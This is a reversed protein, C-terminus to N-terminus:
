LFRKINIIIKGKKSTGSEGLYIIKGYGRLTIRDNEKIRTDSSLNNKGSVSVRGQSIYRSADSRKVKFGSTLVTDLRVSSVTTTIIETKEEKRIEGDESYDCNLSTRGAKNFNLIIYDAIEKKVAIYVTEGTIIDGVTERKIGLGMLAGLIDRHSLNEIGKGTVKLMKVPFDVWEENALFASVVREAGEYGGYTLFIVNEDNKFIEFLIEKREESIFDSYTNYNREHCRLYSDYIKSLLIKDDEDKAYHLLTEKKVM